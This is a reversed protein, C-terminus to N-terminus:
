RTKCDLKSFLFNILIINVIFCKWSIFNDYDIVACFSAYATAPFFLYYYPLFLLVSKLQILVYTLVLLGELKKVFAM